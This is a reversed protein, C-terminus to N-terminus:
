GIDRPDLRIRVTGPERRASRAAAAEHLARALATHAARPARLLLRVQGEEPSSPGEPPPDPVPCLAGTADPSGPDVTGPSGSRPAHPGGLPVPGLVEAGAPLHLRDAIAAVADPTGTLTAAVVAPPLSLEARERLERDAHGGPDLRVLAQVVPLTPDACVVVVGGHAGSRVLAAAATWRRLAEEGARLDPREVLSDGDLLAAAAYGGVAVPEIGPTALVLAPGGEVVPPPRGSRSVVVPVGPFARGLEEATREVGVVRARLGRDGCRPCAWTVHVRACWDCTATGARSLRLPGHCAPCRAPERCTRCSTRPLYGVRPVQVLVPGQRLGERLAVWARRPVRAAVALPDDADPGEQATVIRPWARRRVERTPAIERAWGGRLLAAGEATRSWGGLLFAAGSDRAALALVERAHPYPARPECHQDDGDDWLVVLGLDAVPAFAAARTGIVVRVDARLVALFAAYRAAPGLDAELRVYGGSGLRAAMASELVDLDRRDPVVVLSGRGSTLTAAAADAVARAWADGPLATWVARPSGGSALRALFAPGAPYATWVTDRPAGGAPALVPRSPARETEGHRPPVALRLVDCLNGAYRDAVARALHAVEPALVREPSVVRRLPSLQGPHESSDARELLFGDVDQGAFRVRVRVGPRATHSMSAPVLYDFTRDLHALPVDVVVRAVPLEEAPPSPRRRRRPRAARM